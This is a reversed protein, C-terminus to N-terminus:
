NHMKWSRDSSILGMVLADYFEGQWLLAQRKRGEHKFGIKEYVHIARDNFEFVELEVRNIALEDFAFDMLLRIAETGMGRGFNTHSYLACRFNCSRNNLDIDNIVVEGLPQNLETPRCIAYDYRDPVEAVQACFSEVAEFTFSEHSGTLRTVEEDTMSTYMAEADSQGIPRLLINNGRLIPQHKM